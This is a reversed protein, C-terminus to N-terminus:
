GLQDVECVVIHLLRKRDPDGVPLLNAAEILDIIKKKIKISDRVELLHQINLWGLSVLTSPQAIGVM